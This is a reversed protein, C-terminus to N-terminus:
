THFSILPLTKHGEPLIAVQVEEVNPVCAEFADNLTPYWIAGTLALTRDSLRGGVFVFKKESGFYLRRRSEEGRVAKLRWQIDREPLSYDRKKHLRILDSLDMDQLDSHAPEKAEDEVLVIVTGGPKVACSAMKVTYQNVGPSPIGPAAIVLDRLEGLAVGWVHRDGYAVAKAHVLEVVGGFAAVPEAKSNMVYNVLFEIGVKRGTADSDKRSPSEMSGYDSLPSFNFSHNRAITEFSSVGPLIMKYGGEYGYATHPYVRGCAIKYDAEAVFRNVWIPTGSDTFGYFVLNDKDGGDHSICKYKEVIEKGLKRELEEQTMPDHMGSATVFLIDKDVAGAQKVAELVVPVFEYAPTPRGWDDVIIAVKKGSLDQQSLPLTGLPNALAEATLEAWTKTPKEDKPRFVAIQDDRLPLDVRLADAGVPLEVIM